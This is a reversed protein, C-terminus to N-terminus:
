VEIIVNKSLQLERAEFDVRVTAAEGRRGRWIVSRSGRASGRAFLFHDDNAQGSLSQTGQLVKQEPQTGQTYSRSGVGLRYKVQPQNAAVM